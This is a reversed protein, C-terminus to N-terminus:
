NKIQEKKYQIPSCGFQKKFAKSFNAQDCFGVMYCIEAVNGVNQLILDAARQLRISRILQGAPQDILANLKRNLQSISMNVNEAIQEIEFNENELNSEITKIVNELFKQDVSINTVESPKIVSVKAFKNRLQKRQYILNKVRVKLEKASFPKTIYADIGTELGEIKDDLAAKATLMIIPIHSTKDNSRIKKCFQYGDMKPMMIDSIILDPIETEAKQIGEEGNSAEFIKYDNEIQEKIYSRVDSNDEVILIIEIQKKSDNIRNGDNILNDIEINQFNDSIESHKTQEDSFEVLKERESNFNGLPMEITFETWYNVESEVQIKGKHLEVLEKTLALGIGTGEFERTNSGEVQYFRDFIHPLNEKSIGKGNDKFKIQVKTKDKICLSISVEGGSKTFKLSNSILNYFVKEMKEPDFVVPINELDSKFKLSIKQTEALSEFSYFLSKLFSVINHLEAKLKMSGAELKSLDLLQNILGLLRRANRNAVHLKGKEKTEINSSLVSEIQGLVLTLPTRFEHSINAFFQSKLQDLDKLKEFAVLEIELAHKKHIRKLEYNRILYLIGLIIASYIIYAWWFLYWPPLITFTFSDENGIVGYINKSRVRFTYEGNSLNTYEKKTEKSWQSWDEDNEELLYQYLNLEPKDYSAASYHFVIDNNTFRFINKNNRSFNKTGSYVLSDHNVFVNRIHTSFKQKYNTIREPFYKVLGEDSSIWLIEKGTVPNNDSYIRFIRSLDLRKFEPSPTWSYRNNKQKIAEGIELGNKTEAIIWLDGKKNKTYSFLKNTSNAFSEGLISDPVFNNKQKQYRFLGTDTAFNTKNEILLIQNLNGPLEQNNLYYEINIKAADSSSFLNGESSSIKIAGKYLAYLWLNGETDEIIRSIELKITPLKKLFNLTGNKYQLIDFGNRHIVYIINPDINSKCIESGSYDFLKEISNDENIKYIMDITTAFLNNNISFFNDGSSNVSKMAKFTGSTEDFYLIGFSNSAYLKDNFRFLSSLYNKGTKEIPLITFPSAIEIRSIGENKALWLSGQKDSYVDFVVDTKLGNYSNINQILNGNDDIIFVGGRQTAIAINGNILKCANYIKDQILFNDAETKFQSFNNGDYLYLGNTNTTLLIKGNFPLMDYVGIDTFSEGDQVLELSNGNIKLLGIGSNRVYINDEIKYFRYSYVSDIVSIKNNYCRFIRDHTKFYVGKSNVTVDWVDGFNQTQSGFNNILSYFKLKGISDPTLYGFDSSAAVYIKGTSDICMSRVISNTSTKIIRWSVGDYELIGDDNGFYM